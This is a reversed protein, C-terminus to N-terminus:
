LDRFVARVFAEDLSTITNPITVSTLNTCERFAWGLSTVIYSEGQYYVSEPIIIDGEYGKPSSAMEACGDNLIYFLGDIEIPDQAYLFGCVLLQTFFLLIKKM